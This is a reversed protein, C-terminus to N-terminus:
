SNIGYALRFILAYTIVTSSVTNYRELNFINCVKLFCVLVCQM